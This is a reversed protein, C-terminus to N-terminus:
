APASRYSGVSPITSAPAPEDCAGALSATAATAADHARRKGTAPTRAANADVAFGSTGDAIADRRADPALRIATADHNRAGPRRGSRTVVRAPSASTASGSPAAGSTADRM